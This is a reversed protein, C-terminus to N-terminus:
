LGLSIALTISGYQPHQAWENSYVFDDGKAPGKPSWDALATCIGLFDRFFDAETMREGPLLGLVLAYPLLDRHWILRGSSRLRRLHARFRRAEDLLQEGQHVREHVHLRKLIDLEVADDVLDDRFADLAKPLRDRAELVLVSEDRQLIHKLLREEYHLLDGDHIKRLRWSGGTPSWSQEIAVVNRAALDLLTAPVHGLVPRALLVM